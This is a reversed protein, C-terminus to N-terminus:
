FQQIGAEKALFAQYEEVSHFDPLTTTGPDATSRASGPAIPPAVHPTSRPAAQPASFQQGQAAATAPPQQTTGAQPALGLKAAAQQALIFPLNPNSLAATDNKAQLDAFMGSMVLTLPSGDQWADGYTSRIAARSAEQASEFQELSQQVRLDARVKATIREERVADLEEQLRSEAEVDFDSRAQQLQERIESERATLTAIEDGQAAAGPATAEPSDTPPTDAAGATQSIPALGLEKRAMEEAQSPLLTIGSGQHAKLIAFTKEMLPNGQASLRWNNTVGPATPDAPPQGPAGAQNDEPEATSEEPPLTQATPAPPAPPQVAPEAPASQGQLIADAAAAEEPTPPVLNAIEAEYNTMASPDFGVSAAAAPEATATASM